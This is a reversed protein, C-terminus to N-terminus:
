MRLFKARQVHADEDPEIASRKRKKTRVRVIHNTPIDNRYWSDTPKVTFNQIWLMRQKRGEQVKRRLIRRLKRDERYLKNWNKCVRMASHMSNPDLMRFISTSIERPLASIM